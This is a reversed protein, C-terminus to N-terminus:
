PSAPADLLQRIKRQLEDGSFPKEIFASLAERELTEHRLMDHSYGSMFVVKMRPQRQRIRAVLEPGTMGPMIVDTLVLDIDESAALRLADTGEAALLVVYGARTLIRASMRRVDDEDEVVLLTEGRAAPVAAPPRQESRPEARSTPLHIKVSTGVGPESYLMVHGGAETVIGYVTALGLGTGEGKPKTTYFPEFAREVVDATMGVGTDSVTLRVYEGAPVGVHTSVFEEDLVVNSMEIVLRGGQPMADRGNVALNVLVQEIQGRDAEIPWLGHESVLSLRVREGLARHLFNELGSAVSALDLIERKVVERRSFILLQRTLAAGRRAAQRIEEIDERAQSDAPLEDAVFTAFNIIVGLLNNFDHAIGGALQGVSELRRSQNLEELLARERETEARDSIDRIAAVAVVGEDTELSSLSIEAPFESGDKRRAYLEVGAGMGRTRPDRFYGDRHAAHGAGFRDPVLLEVPTHLLEDRSYGFLAEAQRNALTISGNQRVGVIADPAFELLGRFTREARKQVSIDRAITAMGLVTGRADRVASITLAVEIRTGDKRMQETELHRVHAGASLMATDATDLGSLMTLKRGIVEDPTYGYLEVAARNWSTIVNDVSHGIIADNSSDVIAALRARAQDALHRESVDRVAVLAIRGTPADISSLSIEAPFESGDQRLGWLDLNAGMPRSTPTAFYGARHDPLGDRFRQPILMEVRSGVLQRRSWGFLTEARHNAVVINGEQEVGVIADPAFELL